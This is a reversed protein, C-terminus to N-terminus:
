EGTRGQLAVRLARVEELVAEWQEVTGPLDRDGGEGRHRAIEEEVLQQVSRPDDVRPFSMEKSEGGATDFEVTGWGRLNGIVGQSYSVNQLSDYEIATVRRSVIGSKRYLGGTTVVYDTNRVWLYTAVPPVVGFVALWTPIQPVAVALAVIVIGAVAGPIVTQIRPGGQWRLEEDPDLSLWPPASGESPAGTTM